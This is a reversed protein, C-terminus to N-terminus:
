RAGGLYATMISIRSHGLEQAIVLRASRDAERSASGSMAPPLQGTIQQYREVAYAARLEHLRNINHQQITERAARLGGERWQAWTQEPPVLSRANKQLDAARQLTALQSQKLIPVERSRGGKTGHTISVVGRELAQKLTGKADILSSEKSRLGLERALEVIVAGREQGNSYMVNTVTNVSKRDLGQPIEIRLNSRKAIGCDKTPSVSQWQGKTALTMVTNVASVLNQGYAASLDGASVRAAIMQGYAAVLQATVGELRQRGEEKAYAAFHQWRESVTAASAYSMSGNRAANNAAFTGAKAMDRTQLGYNNGKAM